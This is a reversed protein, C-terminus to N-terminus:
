ESLINIVEEEPMFGPHRITLKNRNYIEDSRSTDEYKNYALELTSQVDKAVRHQIERALGQYKLTMNTMFVNRAGEVATYLDGAYSYASDGLRTLFDSLADGVKDRMATADEVSDFDVRIAMRMINSFMAGKMMDISLTVNEQQEATIVGVETNLTTEDFGINDILSDVVSTGLTAPVVEGNLTVTNGRQEGSCGGIVGGFEVDDVMGVLNQMQDASDFFADALECPADLLGSISNAINLVANIIGNVISTLAFAVANVATAIKNILNGISNVTSTIFAGVANFTSIFTDLFENIMDFISTDVSGIFDFDRGPFISDNFQIFHMTFRAIGGEEITEEITAKEKVLVEIEGYYPHILKGAGFGKLVNILDDRNQFYDYDNDDNAIVYGEITFEDPEQGFDQTIPEIISTNWRSTVQLGKKKADRYQKWSAHRYWIKARKGASVTSKNVFFPVGRFSAPQLNDRWDDLFGFLGM